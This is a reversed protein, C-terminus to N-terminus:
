QKTIAIAVSGGGIFPERYEIINSMDPFYKSLKPVARSKGGPYPLPTKLYKM